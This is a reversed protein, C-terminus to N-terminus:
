GVLRSRIESLAPEVVERLYPQELRGWGHIWRPTSPHNLCVGLGGAGGIEFEFVQDVARGVGLTKAVAGFFGKGQCIIVNPELIEMVARFHQSCNSRMTRTSRGRTTGDTASCLLFNVLAFANFLHIPEGEAPHLWEGAEDAGPGSGFLIRLATTTGRMHPNRGNFGGSSFASRHLMERRAEVGVLAGGHGYE